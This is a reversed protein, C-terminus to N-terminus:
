AIVDAVQGTAVGLVPGGEPIALSTVLFLIVGTAPARLEELTDGFLDRLEGIPQGEAVEDGCAVSPHYTAPTSARIWAFRRYRRVPPPEAEKGERLALHVLVNELGALHRRVSEEDCIGQQGIEVIAAPVGLDAAAAHSAGPVDDGVNEIIHRLGYAEALRRARADLERDGTLRYMGFPELAEILDGCHLDIYYDSGRMLEEVLFNTVQESALGDPRGPFARNLNRGDVPNVYISREFFGPLNVLSVVIVTGRLTDPDLARAFRTAAEIPPYEAAHIGATVALTPGDVAGRIVWAPMKWAPEIGPVAVFGRVKEGPGPALDGFSKRSM